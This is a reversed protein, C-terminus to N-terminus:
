DRGRGRRLYTYETVRETVVYPVHTQEIVVSHVPDSAWACLTALNVKAIDPGRRAVGQEDIEKRSLILHLEAQPEDGEKWVGYWHCGMANDFNLPTGEVRATVGQEDPEHWDARVGLSVALDMFEQRTRIERPQQQQKM